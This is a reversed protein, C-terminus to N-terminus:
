SEPSLSALPTEGQFSLTEIVFEKFFKPTKYIDM